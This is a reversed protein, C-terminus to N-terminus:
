LYIVPPTLYLSIHHGDDVREVDVGQFVEGKEWCEGVTGVFM